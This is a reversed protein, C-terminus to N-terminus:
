GGVDVQAVLAQFRESERLPDYVPRTGLWIMETARVEAAAELRGLALENENLGILVQALLAPSVYRRTARKELRQLIAAAEEGQGAQALAHGLAALTESSEGALEVAKRLATLSEDSRGALEYCQGLFYYILSFHPHEDALAEFQGTALELDGAYFSLIGRSVAIATSAPDLESAADLEHAAHEFRGQPALVNLALWQHATAYSPAAKIAAAFGEEAGQWDWDYIGTVCARSALAEGLRPDVSLAAEAAAKAEPLVERPARAGYIGLITYADALGSHALAFHPDNELARRFFGVSEAVASGTRQNWLHRARLYLDYAEPNTTGRAEIRERDATSLERHVAVAIHTAVESQVEFIDELERDFTESWISDGTAAGVVEAVIRVRMGARRVSGSVLTAVGLEAAIEPVPRSSGKYPMVSARSLVKLGEIQATSAIIDDTIGDSFYENEPDASLNEFPLVAVSDPRLERRPRAAAHPALAELEERTLEKKFGKLTLETFWALAMAVPFGVALLGIVWPGATDPIPLRDILVDAVELIGWAAVLYVGAAGIVRRRRLEEYFRTLHGKL